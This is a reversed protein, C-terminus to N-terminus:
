SDDSRPRYKPILNESTSLNLTLVLALYSLQMAPLRGYPDFHPCRRHLDVM